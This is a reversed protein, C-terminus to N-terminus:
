LDLPTCITKETAQAMQVKVFQNMKGSTANSRRREREVSFRLGARLNQILPFM